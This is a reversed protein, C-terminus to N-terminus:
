PPPPAPTPAPAPAPAIYGALATQLQNCLTQLADRQATMALLQAHETSSATIRAQRAAELTTHEAASINQTPSIAVSQVSVNAPDLGLTDSILAAVQTFLYSLDTANPVPGLTAGLILSTYPVGGQDPMALIYSAPVYLWTGNGAQLSVIVVGAALDTQYDASSIGLPTYYLAQPDGGAAAIDSLKRVAVVQYATNALLQTDFPTKLTFVGQVGIGPILQM